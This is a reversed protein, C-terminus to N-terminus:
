FGGYSEGFHFGYLFATFSACQSAISFLYMSIIEFGFAANNILDVAADKTIAFVLSEHNM